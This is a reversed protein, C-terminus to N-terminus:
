RKQPPGTAVQGAAQNANAPQTKIGRLQSSQAAVKTMMSLFSDITTIWQYAKKGGKQPVVKVKGSKVLRNLVTHIASLPSSYKKFDFGKTEMRQKLESASIPMMAEELTIRALETLGTTLELKIAAEKAARDGLERCLGELHSILPQLQAIKYDIQQRQRLLVALAQKKAKLDRRYATLNM